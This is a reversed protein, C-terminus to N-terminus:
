FGSQRRRRVLYAVALLGAVAFIAEFGPTKQMPTSTPMYATPTTTPTSGLPTAASAEEATEGTIVYISFGESQAEFYVTDNDEGVKKTPLKGWENTIENFRSLKVTNISINNESIWSKNVKFNISANEVNEDKINKASINMYSYAKGETPASAVSSPASAYKQVTVHVDSVTNKVEIKVESVGSKSEEFTVVKSEGPNVTGVEKTIEVTVPPATAPVESSSKVSAPASAAGGSAAGGGASAAGGASSQSVVVACSTKNTGDGTCGTGGACACACTRTKFGGVCSSWEGCVWSQACAVNFTTAATDNIYGSKNAYVNLNYTGDLTTNAFNGEYNGLSKEGLTLWEYSNDRRTVKATVDATINVYTGNQVLASIAVTENQAYSTKNTQVGAIHLHSYLVSINSIKIKGASASTFNLPVLCSGSADPTCTSLYNSIAATNLNITQPSNTANLEGSLSWESTGDSGIDLSPNTPYSYNGIYTELRIDLGTECKYCGTAASWNKGDYVLHEGGKYSDEGAFAIVHYNRVKIVIHYKKGVELTPPTSFTANTWRCGSQAPIITTSLITGSPKGADDTQIEVPIDSPPDCLRLVVRSLFGSIGVTVSQSNVDGLDYTNFPPLISQDLVESTLELDGGVGLQGSTINANRLIKLYVMQNGGASPFTIIKETSGDFLADIIHAHASSVCLFLILAIAVITVRNIYRGKSFMKIKIRLYM